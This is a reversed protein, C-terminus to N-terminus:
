AKVGFYKAGIFAGIVSFAFGIGAFVALDELDFVFEGILYIFAADLILFAFGGTVTGAM